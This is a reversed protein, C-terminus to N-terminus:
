GMLVGTGAHTRKPKKHVDVNTKGNGIAQPFAAVVHDKGTVQIPAYRVSIHKGQGVTLLANDEGHIGVKTLQSVMRLLGMRSDQQQPHRSGIPVFLNPDHLLDDIAVTLLERPLKAHVTL